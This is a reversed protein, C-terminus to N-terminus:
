TGYFIMKNRSLDLVCGHAQCFDAGLIASFHQLSVVMIAMKCYFEGFEVHVDAVGHVHINGGAIGCVKVPTSRLRVKDYLSMYLEYSMMTYPSGTDILFEAWTHNIYGYILNRCGTDRSVPETYRTANTKISMNDGERDSSDCGSFDLVSNEDGNTILSYDLKNGKEPDVGLQNQLNTTIINKCHYEHPIENDRAVDGRNESTAGSM